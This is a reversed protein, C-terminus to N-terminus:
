EKYGINIEYCPVYSQPLYANGRLARSRSNYHKLKRTVQRDGERRVVWYDETTATEQLEGESYINKLHLSINDSSTQFLAAMLQQSLWVTENQFRVDLKTEGDETRYIIFQSANDPKDM